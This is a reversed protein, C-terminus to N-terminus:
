KGRLYSQTFTDDPLCVHGSPCASDSCDRVCVDVGLEFAQCRYGVGCDDSAPTCNRTCEAALCYGSQCEGAWRCGAGAAGKAAPRGDSGIVVRMLPNFNPVYDFVGDGNYRTQGTASPDAYAVQQPNFFLSPAYDIRVWFDSSLDIALSAFDVDIWTDVEWPEIVFGKTGLADGPTGGSNPHISITGSYASAAVFTM